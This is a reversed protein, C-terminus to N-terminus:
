KKAVIEMDYKLEKDNSWVEKTGGNAEYIAVEEKIDDVISRKPEWGLLTTAKNPTTIFTERRFPFEQVGAGDWEPFDRPEYYTYSAAAPDNGVAKNTMDSLGKYSVFKNTGCNFVQGIANEKGMTAAIM